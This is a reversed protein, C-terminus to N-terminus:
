DCNQEILKRAENIKAEREETSLVRYSGADLIKIRGHSQLKNMNQTAATCNEKREREIEKTTRQQVKPTELGQSKLDLDKQRQPSDNNPPNTLDPSRTPILIESKGKTPPVETYHIQGKDD